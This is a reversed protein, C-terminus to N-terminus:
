KEGDDKELLGMEKLLTSWRNHGRLKEIHEISFEEGTLLKGNQHEYCDRCIDGNVESCGKCIMVGCTNSM